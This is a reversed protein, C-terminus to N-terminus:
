EYSPLLINMRLEIGALSSLPVPWYGWVCRCTGCSIRWRPVWTAMSVSTTSSIFDQPVELSIYSCIKVSNNEFHTTFFKHERIKRDKHLQRPFWSCGSSGATASTMHRDHSPWTVTMHHSVQIYFLFPHLWSPLPRDLLVLTAIVVADVVVSSLFFFSVEVVGLTHTSAAICHQHFDSYDLTCWSAIVAVYIILSPTCNISCIYQIYM